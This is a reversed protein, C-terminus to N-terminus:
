ILLNIFSVSVGWIGYTEPTLLWGLILNFLYNLTSNFVFSLILIGSAKTATQSKSSQSKSINVM